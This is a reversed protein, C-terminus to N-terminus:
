TSHRVSTPDKGHALPVFSVPREVLVNRFNLTVERGDSLLIRHVFAPGEHTKDAADVEDYLWAIPESRIAAPLVEQVTPPTLLSYTLVVLRSPDSEPRLTITFQSRGGWWMDLVRADHLPAIDILQQVEPPAGARVEMLRNRYAAMAQEWDELAALFSTEHSRDQLRALRDSTFYKV